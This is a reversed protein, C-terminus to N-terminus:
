FTCLLLNSILPTVRLIQARAKRDEGVGKWLAEFEFFSKPPNSDRLIQVRAEESARKVVASTFNPIEPSEGKFQRKIDEDKKVGGNKSSSEPKTLKNEAFRTTRVETLAPLKESVEAKSKEPVKEIIENNKEEIPLDEKPPASSPQSKIAPSETKPLKKSAEKKPQPEPASPIEKIEEM